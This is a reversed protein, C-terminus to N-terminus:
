STEITITDLITNKVTCSGTVYVIIRLPNFPIKVVLKIPRHSGITHSGYGEVTVVNYPVLPVSFETLLAEWTQMDEIRMNSEEWEKVFEKLVDVAKSM